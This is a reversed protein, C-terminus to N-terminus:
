KNVRQKKLIFAVVTIALVAIVITAAIWYANTPMSSNNSTPPVSNSPSPQGTLPPSPTQSVTSTPTPNPTQTTKPTPSPSPPQTPPLSPSPSFSSSPLPTVTAWEPLEITISDINFPTMLPYRDSVNGNIVYPTDGIGDGNADTGNYDSWFNGEKGKDFYSTGYVMPSVQHVNNIFNNHYLTNNGLLRGDGSPAELAVGQFCNMVNNAYLVNNYGKHLALGENGGNAINNAYLTNYSGSEILISGSNILRNKVVTNGDGTVYIIGFLGCDTLNNAYVVNFAGGIDLGGSASGAFSNSAFSNYSGVCDILNNRPSPLFSNQAIVNRNGDVSIGDSKNLINGVIQTGNASIDIPVWWGHECTITFSSINVNNATIQIAIPPPPSFPSIGDWSSTDINKIIAMNADEGALSITKNIV